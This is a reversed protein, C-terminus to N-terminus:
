TPRSVAAHAENRAADGEDKDARTTKRMGTPPGHDIYIFGKKAILCRLSGETCPADIQVSVSIVGKRAGRLTRLDMDTPNALIADQGIALSGPRPDDAPLPLVAAGSGAGHSAVMAAAPQDPRRLEAHPSAGMGGPDALAPANASGFDGLRLLRANEAQLARLESQLSDVLGVAMQADNVAQADVMSRGWRTLWFLAMQAARPAGGAAKWRYVTSLGVGLVRAVRAPPPDGLDALILEWLPLRRPAQDLSYLQITM